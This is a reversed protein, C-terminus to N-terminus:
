VWHGNTSNTWGAGELRTLPGSLVNRSTITSRFILSTKPRPRCTSTVSSIVVFVQIAYSTLM